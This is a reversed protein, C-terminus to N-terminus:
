SGHGGQTFVHSPLKHAQTSFKAGTFVKGGTKAQLVLSPMLRWATALFAAFLAAQRIIAGAAEEFATEPHLLVPALCFLLAPVALFRAM